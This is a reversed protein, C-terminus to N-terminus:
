IAVRDGAEEEEPRFLRGQIPRVGLVAFYDSTSHFGNIQIPDGFGTLTFANFFDAAFGSFVQQRERLFRFKPESFVLGTLNRERAEGQVIFLEDSRDFSVARLFLSDVLSFIATNAGIGVTLTLVALLSFGPSKRLSRLAFRLDTLMPHVFTQMPRALGASHFCA